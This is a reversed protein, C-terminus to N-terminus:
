RIAGLLGSWDAVQLRDKVGTRRMIAHLHNKVTQKSISLLSAIEKNTLGQSILPVLQQQRRTLGIELRIRASPIGTWQRTFARFLHICFEPPCVAQGGAVALVGSVIEAASADKLIYGIAGARVCELFVELDSEMDILVTKINKELRSVKTILSYESFRAAVSDLILVSAGSAEIYSAANPVCASVGCVQIDGKKSLLRALTERVLRNGAVLFVSATNSAM